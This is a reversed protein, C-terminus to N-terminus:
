IDFKMFFGELPLRITGHPCVSMFFSIVAKRLNESGFVLTKMLILFGESYNIGKTVFNFYAM